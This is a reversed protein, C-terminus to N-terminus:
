VTRETKKKVKALNSGMSSTAGKKPECFTGIVIRTINPTANVAIKRGCFRIFTCSLMGKAM